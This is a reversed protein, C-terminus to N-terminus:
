LEVPEQLQPESKQLEIKEFKKIQTDITLDNYSLVVVDPIVSVLFDYIAPRLVPSTLIIPKHGGAIMNEFVKNCAVYFKEVTDPAFGLTSPHLNGQQAQTIFHSELTSDLVSVTVNGASDSYM